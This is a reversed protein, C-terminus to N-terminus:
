PGLIHGQVILQNDDTILCSVTHGVQPTYSALYYAAVHGGRWNVTLPNLSAVTAVVNGTRAADSLRDSNADAFRRAIAALERSM